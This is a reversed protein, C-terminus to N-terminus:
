DTIPYVRDTGRLRISTAGIGIGTENTAIMSPTLALASPLDNGYSSRVIDARSLNDHAVPTSGTAKTTLVEVVEMEYIATTDLKPRPEEANSTLPLPVLLSLFCFFRKM